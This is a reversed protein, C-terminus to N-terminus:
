EYLINAQQKSRMPHTSLGLQKTCRVLIRLGGLFGLAGGRRIRSYCPAYSRYALIDAAAVIGGRGSYGFARNPQKGM